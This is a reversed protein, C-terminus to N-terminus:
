HALLRTVIVAGRLEGPKYNVAKDNPYLKALKDKVEPSIQDPTGHCATCMPQLVIPKAYRLELDYAGTKIVEVYEIDYPKDGAALRSQFKDLAKTQWDNPVGMDPNRARTGVRYVQVQNKMSLNMAIEPAKTKCVGIANLPGGEAMAAQLTQSLEKLMEAGIDRTEQMASENRAPGPQAMASCAALLLGAFLLKSPLANLTNKQSLMIHM